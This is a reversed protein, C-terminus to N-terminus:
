ACTKPCRRGINDIRYAGVGYRQALKSHRCRRRPAFGHWHLGKGAFLQPTQVAVTYGICHAIERSHLYLVVATHAAYLGDIHTRHTGVMCPHHVVAHSEAVGLVPLYVESLERKVIHLSQRQMVPLFAGEQLRSAIEAAGGGNIHTSAHRMEPRAFLKMQSARHAGTREVKYVRRHCALKPQRVRDVRRHRGFPKFRRALVFEPIPADLWIASNCIISGGCPLVAIYVRQAGLNIEVPRSGPPVPVCLNVVISRLATNRPRYHVIHPATALAYPIVVGEHLPTERM